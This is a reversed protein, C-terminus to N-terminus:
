NVTFDMASSTEPLTGGGGYLGTGPTGPNTVTVSITGATAIASAPVAVTLQSGSVFTTNATQAAGNWNVVAKAGFSTGNVTLTFAAGGATASSPNLTAISPVTGAVPPTTAKKSYGCAITLAILTVLLTTKVPQLTQAIKM